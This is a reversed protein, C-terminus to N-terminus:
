NADQGPTNWEYHRSKLWDFSKETRSERSAFDINFTAVKEFAATSFCIFLQELTM